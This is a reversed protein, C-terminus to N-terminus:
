IYDSILKVVVEQEKPFIEIIISAIKRFYFDTGRFITFIYIINLM